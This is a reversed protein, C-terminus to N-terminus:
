KWRGIALWNFGCNVNTGKASIVATTKTHTINASANCDGIVSTIYATGNRSATTIVIFDTNVFSQGFTITTSLIGNTLSTFSNIGYQILLGNPFKIYNNGSLFGINSFAQVTQAATLSQVSDYSLYTSDIKSSSYTDASSTQTDDIQPISETSATGTDIWGNVNPNTPETDSIVVGYREDLGIGTEIASMDAALTITGSSYSSTLGTGAAVKSSAERTTVTWKGGNTSELKYIFVQDGQQSASHTSVSRYYQFEVNNITSGSYGVYAMFAMRGQNGTAPNSNSSAKCYVVANADFAAQFDAWTSSGYSLVVMKTGWESTVNTQTWHSPTWSEGSPVATNCKYFLGGYICFDGVAYASSSSYANIITANAPYTADTLAKIDSTLTTVGTEDLFAM